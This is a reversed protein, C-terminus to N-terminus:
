LRFLLRVVGVIVATIIGFVIVPGAIVFMKAGMGLVYGERKFDMAASVITNSFGTIPVAAGAGAFEGLRDYLGLGTFLAGLFIMVALTASQALNLPLGGRVFLNLIIQGVVCIIGGVFFAKIFHAFGPVRPKKRKVLEQYAYAKRQREDESTPM